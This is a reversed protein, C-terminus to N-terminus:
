AAPLDFRVMTGRGPTSEARIEGGHAEVLGRAIALGLGSGGSDASKWFRDFVHPLHEPPIGHGTDAVAFCVAMGTRRAELWVKGGRPTHRLANALLNELTQRIRVPDLSVPPMAGVEATLAIGAAAARPEFATLLDDVLGAVETPEKHLPLVGSEALSLTRLDELLRTMVATEDLLTELREDDRPYVGDLMGEVNGRVVSLPTRLEHAVDAFLARRQAADVELRTAMANFSRALGAVEGKAPVPVRAAYDGEAVKDAAAMVDGIAAATRRLGRGMVVLVGILVLVLLFGGPPGGEALAGIASALMMLGVVVGFFCGVKRLFGRKPDPKAPPPWPEGEPWWPPPGQRRRWHPRGGYHRGGHHRWPHTAVPHGSPHIPAPFAPSEPLTPSQPAPPAEPQLAIRAAPRPPPPNPNPNPNM